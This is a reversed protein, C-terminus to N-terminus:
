PAPTQWGEVVKINDCAADNKVACAARFLKLIEAKHAVHDPQKAMYMAQNFCGVYAEGLRCAKEFYRRAKTHDQPAGKAFHYFLGMSACSKAHNLSCAKDLLPLAAKPNKIGLKGASLAFGAVYCSHADDKARQCARQLSGLAREEDAIPRNGYVYHDALARCGKKNGKDCLHVYLHFLADNRSASLPKHAEVRAALALCATAGQPACRQVLEPGSMDEVKTQAPPPQQETKQEHPTTNSPSSAGGCGVACTWVILPIRVSALKV